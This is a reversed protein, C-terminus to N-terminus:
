QGHNDIGGSGLTGYLKGDTALLMQASYPDSGLQTKTFCILESNLPTSIPEAIAPMIYFCEINKEVACPWFFTAGIWSGSIPEFTIAGTLSNINTIQAELGNDSCILMGEALPEKCSRQYYVSQITCERGNILIPRGGEIQPCEENFFIVDKYISVVEYETSGLDPFSVMDGVQVDRSCDISMGCGVKTPIVESSSVAYINYCGNEDKQEGLCLSALAQQGRRVENDFNPLGKEVLVYLPDTGSNPRDTINYYCDAISGNDIQTIFETWTIDTFSICGAESSTPLNVIKCCLGKYQRELSKLREQISKSM